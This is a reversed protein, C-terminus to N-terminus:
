LKEMDEGASIKKGMHDDEHIHLPIEKPKSNCRVFSMSCRKMDKNVRHTHTHTHTHRHTHTDEKSFHRNMENAWEKM